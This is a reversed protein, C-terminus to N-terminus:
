EPSIGHLGEDCQSSPKGADEPIPTVCSDQRAEVGTHEGIDTEVAGIQAVGEGLRDPPIGGVHEYPTGVFPPRLSRPEHRVVGRELIRGRLPRRAQM